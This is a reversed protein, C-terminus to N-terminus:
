GLGVLRGAVTRAQELGVKDLKMFRKRLRDVEDKDVAGGGVTLLWPLWCGYAIPGRVTQARSLIKWRILAPAGWEDGRM